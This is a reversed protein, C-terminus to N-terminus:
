GLITYRECMRVQAVVVHETKVICAVIPQALDGQSKPSLPSRATAIFKGGGWCYDYLAWYQVWIFYPAVFTPKLFAYYVFFMVRPRYGWTLVRCMFDFANICIFFVGVFFFIALPLPLAVNWSVGTMPNTTQFEWACNDRKCLQDLSSHANEEGGM